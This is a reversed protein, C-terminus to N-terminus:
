RGATSRVGRASCRASPSSTACAKTATSSATARGRRRVAARRGRRRPARRRHARLSRRDPVHAPRAARGRLGVPGQADRGPARLLRWRPAPEAEGGAVRPPHHPGSRRDDREGKRAGARRGSPQHARRAGVLSWRGDGARSDDVWRRAGDSWPSPRGGPEDREVRFLYTEAAARDGDDRREIAVLQNNLFHHTLGGNQEDLALASRVVVDHIEARDLLAQVRPDESAPM